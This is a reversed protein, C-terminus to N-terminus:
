VKSADDRRTKSNARPGEDYHSDDAVCKYAVDNLNRRQDMASPNSARCDAQPTLAAAGSQQVEPEQHHARNPQEEQHPESRVPVNVTASM